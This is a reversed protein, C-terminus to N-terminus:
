CEREFPISFFVNSNQPVYAPNHNEGTRINILFHMIYVATSHSGHKLKIGAENGPDYVTSVIQM